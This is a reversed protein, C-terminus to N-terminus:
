HILVLNTPIERKLNYLMSGYSIAEFNVRRQFTVVRGDVLSTTVQCALAELIAILFM